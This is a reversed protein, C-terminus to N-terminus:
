CSGSRTASGRPNPPVPPGPRSAPRAGVAAPRQHAPRGREGAQNRQGSARSAGRRSLRASMAQRLATWGRHRQFPIEFPAAFMRAFCVTAPLLIAALVFFAPTGTAVRGLVLGYSVSSSRCTRSTCATPAPASPGPCAATLSGSSSGRARPPSRPSSAPRGLELAVHQQADTLGTFSVVTAATSYGDAWRLPIRIRRRVAAAPVAGTVPRAARGSLGRVAEMTRRALDPESPEDPHGPGRRRRVADKLLLGAGPVVAVLMLVAYLTTVTVGTAAGLGAGAFAWAAIGERPGWGGISLPIVAATQVVMLLAVLEGLPATCGAVRAAFVFMATHGAVVLVSALTLRPWVGPELLCFRLDAAVARAARHLRSGSRGRRATGRLVLAACGAIGVVGALVYPLAPRVPSPLALLLVATVVAQIVQGCLREWAVARVGRAVDGARRGHMVARHVDGLVGGPLVSNLFLSRYYAGVAAPPGIDVGLARAVTRWRWASCVTTLATLTVAALVAQWTVARLGDAFAAAGVHRLLFWLVAIGAALRLLPPGSRRVAPGIGAPVSHLFAM